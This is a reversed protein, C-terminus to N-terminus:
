RFFIGTHLKYSNCGSSRICLPRALIVPICFFQVFITYSCLGHANQQEGNQKPSLPFKVTYSLRSRFLIMFCLSDNHRLVRCNSAVLPLAKVPCPLGM